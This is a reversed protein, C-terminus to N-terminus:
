AAKRNGSSATADDVEKFSPRVEPPVTRRAYEICIKPSCGKAFALLAVKLVQLYAGENGINSEMKAAFPQVFGYSLLVGLFTGVLAAAVSHGIVEKGQTLKGMTIIVGIVAAVIGLGPMADGVKSVLNPAREEENHVSQIDADMLEELDFPSLPSSIQVKLTDCLFSLAHHNKVFSPYRAFIDSKEPEEVHTELSLMDTKARKTIEFVLMLLEVYNEKTYGRGVVSIVMQKLIAKLVSIPASILLSGFAAGGIILFETPQILVGIHGGHGLYGGLVSGIVIILGLIVLM